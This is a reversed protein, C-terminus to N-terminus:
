RRAASTGCRWTSRRCPWASSAAPGPRAEVRLPDEGVAVAGLEDVATKLSRTLAGGFYTVGLGTVGGDTEVELTVIPRTGGPDAAAGALPEDAPLLVISSNLGSIKMTPVEPDFPNLTAGGRGGSL